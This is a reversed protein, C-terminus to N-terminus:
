PADGVDDRYGPRLRHLHAPLRARRGRHRDPGGSAPRQDGRDRDQPGLRQRRGGARPPRHHPHRHRGAPRDAQRRLQRPLAGHLPRGARRHATPDRQPAPRGGRDRGGPGRRHDGRVAGGPGRGAEPREGDGRDVARGPPARHGRHLPGPLPPEHAGGAPDAAPEAGARPGGGGRERQAPEHGRRDPRGRHQGALGAGAGAAGGPQRPPLVRGAGARHQKEPYINGHKMRKRLAEPSIDVLQIEDADELLHDPITERISTGAIQEAVDKLSELHQINMTTLVDIGADRITEVDEYRWANPMGPANTHYVEDILVVDPRRALIADLDMEKLELGKYGILKRPIVELGELPAETKPRGYTEVLGVVVDRGQAKLRHAEELMAYTKGAGPAAAVYVTLRGRRKGKSAGEDSM